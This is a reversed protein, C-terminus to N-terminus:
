FKARIYGEWLLVLNREMAAAGVEIFNFNLKDRVCAAGRGSPSAPV